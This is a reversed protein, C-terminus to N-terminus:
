GHLENMSEKVERVIDRVKIRNNWGAIQTRAVSYEHRPIENMQGVGYRALVESRIVRSLKDVAKKENQPYFGAEENEWETLKERAISRIDANLYKVQQATVPTNLKVQMELAEMRESMMKQQQSVDKLAEVNQEIMQAMAKLVPSMITQIAASLQEKNMSIGNEENDAVTMIERSM